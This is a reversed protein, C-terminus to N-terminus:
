EHRLAQMPDLRSAARAPWWGALLAIALMLLVAGAAVMPDLPKLEYLLGAIYRTLWAAAGIGLLIGLGALSITERLVMLLVRPRGAGLAMRVGIEPIRSAVSNAMIGYIGVCALVLALLGFASTLAAFLRQRSLTADIQDIQTRVDFVPVDRDVTRVVDRIAKTMLMPDATTRVEFTMAGLERAQSYPAYFTPPMPESVRAYRADACIGVITVTTKGHTFSRGLPMDSPFFRRVFQQNVVAVRLTDARDDRGIPRGHLIPIGMTEFFRNGVENFWAQYAESGWPRDGHDRTPARGTPVVQTTSTSGAVLAESSLSASEVGPLRGIGDEIRQFLAKRAEGAYRSRPPDVNFLLIREPRFGLDSMRLNWLTRVFLGAGVLLLVSLAVQFVTLGRRTLRRSRGLTGRGGDKLWATLEVRTSQWAPVLSFLVGTLLTVAVSALLVRGNFDAQLPPEQWPTALLRPIGQRAWYGAAIGALGGLVALVLGETLMQRAIRGRGAGLSLRVGIERQRAVARAMLLSALNACAILLVVGVLVVLVYLPTSFTERLDGLGGAGSVLRVSPQDRGRTNPLTARVTQRLVLDLVSEARREDIPQKLRGILLVWWYDPDGILSPNRSYRWPLITPQMSLPVFVDPNEGPELGSFHPPNVGVVTVAVQNLLFSRGIALPNRGFRRAWFGDSIVAVTNDAALRDDAPLIARGRAPALRLTRYYEGSVLEGSVLEAQGDIVATIRGIPKFAALGDFIATRRQLEVAVPYSFSGSTTAGTKTRSLNGWVSDMVIKPGSVWTLVRLQEPAPVSLRKWLVAELLSFIATNAGIGLALSLVATATFVPSQRLLRVAYRCDGRLEDLVRLGLAERCDEARAEVSGFETRARRIADEASLGREELDNAYQEIHFQLEDHIDRELDARHFAARLWSRARSLMTM